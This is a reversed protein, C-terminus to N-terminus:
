LIEFNLFILPLKLPLSLFLKYIQHSIKGCINSVRSSEAKLECFITSLWFKATQRPMQCLAQNWNKGAVYVHQKYSFFQNVLVLQKSLFHLAVSYCLLISMEQVKNGTFSFCNHATLCRLPFYFSVRVSFFPAYPTQERLIMQLYLM